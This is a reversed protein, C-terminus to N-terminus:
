WRVMMWTYGKVHSYGKKAL